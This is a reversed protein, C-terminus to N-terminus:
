TIAQEGEEILRKATVKVSNGERVHNSATNLKPGNRHSMMNFLPILLDDWARQVVLLAAHHSVEDREGDCEDHWDDTLWKTPYEPPFEPGLFSRLLKQGPVSWGSPIQNPPQTETLYNVYPAYVSENGKSMERALHRVTGCVM